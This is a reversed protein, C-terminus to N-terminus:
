LIAPSCISNQKQCELSCRGSSCEETAPQSELNSIRDSFSAKESAIIFDSALATSCGEGAAPWNVAAILPKDFEILNWITERTCEMFSALLEPNSQMESVIKKTTETPRDGGKMFSDGEGTMVLVRMDPDHRMVPFVDRLESKMKASLSNVFTMLAVGDNIEIQLTSFNSYDM